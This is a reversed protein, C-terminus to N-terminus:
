VGVGEPLRAAWLAWLEELRDTGNWYIGVSSVGADRLEELAPALGNLDRAFLAALEEGDVCLEVADDKEWAWRERLVSGTFVAGALVAAALVAGSLKM